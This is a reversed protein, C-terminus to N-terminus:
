RLGDSYLGDSDGSCRSGYPVGIFLPNALGNLYLCNKMALAKSRQKSMLTIVLKLLLTGKASM